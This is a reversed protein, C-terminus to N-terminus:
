KTIELWEIASFSSFCSLWDSLNWAFSIWWCFIWSGSWAGTPNIWSTTVLDPYQELKNNCEKQTEHYIWCKMFGREKHCIIFPPFFSSSKKESNEILENTERDKRSPDWRKKFNWSVEKKIVSVLSLHRSKKPIKSVFQLKSAKKKCVRWIFRDMQTDKIRTGNAWSKLPVHMFLKHLFVKHKHKCLSTLLHLSTITRVHM